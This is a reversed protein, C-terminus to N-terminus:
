NISGIQILEVIGNAILQLDAEIEARDQGVIQMLEFNTQGDIATIVFISGILLKEKQDIKYSLGRLDQKGVEFFDIETGIRIKEKDIVIKKGYVSAEGARAKSVRLLYPVAAALLLVGILMPEVFILFLVGIFVLTLAIKFNIDIPTEESKVIEITIKSGNEKLLLDNRELVAKLEPYKLTM